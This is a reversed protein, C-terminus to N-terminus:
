FRVEVLHNGNLIFKDSVCRGDGGREARREDGAEM